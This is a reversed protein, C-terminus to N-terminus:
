QFKLVEEPELSTAALEPSLCWTTVPIQPLQSSGVGTSIRHRVLHTGGRRHTPRDVGTGARRHQNTEEPLAVGVGMVGVAGGEGM